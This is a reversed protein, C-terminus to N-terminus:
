LFAMSSVERLETIETERSEVAAELRLIKDKLKRVEMEHRESDRYDISVDMKPYKRLGDISPVRKMWNGHVNFWEGCLRDYKEAVLKHLTGELNFAMMRSDCPIAAIVTLKHPNSTQLELLRRNVDSAVGIKVPYKDQKRLPKKSEQKIFYVFHEKKM